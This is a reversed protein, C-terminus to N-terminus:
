DRRKKKQPVKLEPYIERIKRLTGSAILSQSGPYRELMRETVRDTEAPSCRIIAKGGFSTIVRLDPMEPELVSLTELVGSRGEDEPVVFVIYRRRGRVAKVVM